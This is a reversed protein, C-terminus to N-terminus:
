FLGLQFNTLPLIDFFGNSGEFRKWEKIENPWSRNGKASFLEFNNSGINQCKSICWHDHEGSFWILGNESTKESKQKWIPFDNFKINKIDYMGVKNKYKFGLWGKLSIKLQKPANDISTRESENKPKM